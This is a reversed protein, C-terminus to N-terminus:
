ECGYGVTLANGIRALVGESVRFHGHKPAKLPSKSSNRPPTTEFNPNHKLTSSPDSKLVRSYKIYKSSKFISGSLSSPGYSM